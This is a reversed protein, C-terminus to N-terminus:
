TDLRRELESRAVQWDFLCHIPIETPKESLLTIPGLSLPPYAKLAADAVRLELMVQTTGAEIRVVDLANSLVVRGTGISNIYDLLSNIETVFRLNRFYAGLVVSVIRELFSLDKEYARQAARFTNRLVVQNKPSFDPPNKTFWIFRDLLRRYQPFETKTSEFGGIVDTTYKSVFETVGTPASLLSRGQSAALVHIVATGEGVNSVVLPHDPKSRFRDIRTVETGIPVNLPKILPRFLTILRETQRLVNGRPGTVEFEVTAIKSPVEVRGARFLLGLYGPTEFRSVQLVGEKFGDGKTPLANFVQTLELEPPVRIKIRVTRGGRWLM